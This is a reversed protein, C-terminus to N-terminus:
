VVPETLMLRVVVYGDNHESFKYIEIDKIRDTLRNFYASVVEPRRLILGSHDNISCLFYKNARDICREMFADFRERVPNNRGLILTQFSDYILYPAGKRGVQYGAERMMEAHVHRVMALLSVVDFRECHEIYGVIDSQKISVDVGFEEARDRALLVRETDIEVGVVRTAGDQKALLGISGENCGLDLWSLGSVKDSLDFSYYMRPTDVRGRILRGNILFTQYPIRKNVGLLYLFKRYM